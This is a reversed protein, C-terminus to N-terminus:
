GTAKGCAISKVKGVFVDFFCDGAPNFCFEILAM